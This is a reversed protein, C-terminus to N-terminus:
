GKVSLTLGLESVNYKFGRTHPWCNVITEILAENVLLLNFKIQMFFKVLIIQFERSNLVFVM